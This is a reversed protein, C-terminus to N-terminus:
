SGHFMKSWVPFQKKPAELMHNGKWTQRSMKESNLTVKQDVREWERNSWVEYILASWFYRILHSLHTRECKRVKCLLNVHDSSMIEVAKADTIWSSAQEAIINKKRSTMEWSFVKKMFDKCTSPMHHRQLPSSASTRSRGGAGDTNTPLACTPQENLHNDLLSNRLNASTVPGVECPQLLKGSRSRDRIPYKTSQDFFSCLLATLKM